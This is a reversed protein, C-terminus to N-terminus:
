KSASYVQIKERPVVVQVKERPFEKQSDVLIMEGNVNVYHRYVTGIFSVEEIAGDFRVGDLNADQMKIEAEDAKFVVTVLSGASAKHAIRTGAVSVSQGDSSVMGRLVNSVGMFEAVFADSPHHYIEEPTGVQVVRGQSMVVVVDSM